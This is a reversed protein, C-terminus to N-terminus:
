NVLWQFYKDVEENWSEKNRILELDDKQLEKTGMIDSCQYCTHESSKKVAHGLEHYLTRKLILIDNMCASNIHIIRWGSLTVGLVNPKYFSSFNEVIYIKDVERMMWSEINHIGRKQGETIYERLYPELEESISLRLENIPGIFNQQAQTVTISLIILIAFLNKM